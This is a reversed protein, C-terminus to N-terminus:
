IIQAPYLREEHWEYPRGSNDYEDIVGLIVPPYDYSEEIELYEYFIGTRGDRLTVHAGRKLALLDKKKM